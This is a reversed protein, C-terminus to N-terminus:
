RVGELAELVRAVVYGPRTVLDRRIVYIILRGTAALANARDIRVPRGNVMVVFQRVPMEIGASRLLREIRTECMGETPAADAYRLALIERLVRRVASEFAAEIM